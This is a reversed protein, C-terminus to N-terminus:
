RRPTAARVVARTRKRAAVAAPQEGPQGAEAIVENWLSTADVPGRHRALYEAVADAFVRSRPVRLRRACAEVEAFLADPISIATKM